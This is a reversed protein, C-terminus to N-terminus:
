TKCKKKLYYKNKLKRNILSSIRIKKKDTEVFIHLLEVTKLMQLLLFHKM